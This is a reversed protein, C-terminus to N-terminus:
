RVFGTIRPEITVLPLYLPLRANVKVPESGLFFMGTGYDYVSIEVTLTVDVKRPNPREFLNGNLDNSITRAPVVQKEIIRALVRGGTDTMTDGIRIADAIYPDVGTSARYSSYELPDENKLLAKVRVTKPTARAYKGNIDTVFGEIAVPGVDIRIPDGIQVATGRYKVADPSGGSSAIRVTVFVTQATGYQLMRSHPYSEVSLIKADVRGFADKGELGPVYQTTMPFPLTGEDTYLMGKNAVRVTVTAFGSRPIMAYAASALVLVGILLLSYELFGWKRVIRKVTAVATDLTRKM